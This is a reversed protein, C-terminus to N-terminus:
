KNWFFRIDEMSPPYGTWRDKGRKYWRYFNCTYDFINWSDYVKRYACGSPIDKHRAAKNALRKSIKTPGCPIKVIPTHRYSRSM